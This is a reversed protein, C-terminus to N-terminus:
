CIVVSCEKSARPLMQLEKTIELKRENKATFHIELSELVRACKLFCKVIEMQCETGGFEFIKITKLFSSLCNVGSEELKHWLAPNWKRCDLYKLVLTDLSRCRALFRPLQVLFLGPSWVTLHTLNHFFPIPIKHKRLDALTTGCITLTKINSIGRMLDTVADIHRSRDGHEEGFFIDAEALSQVNAFAHSNLDNVSYDLYVLNPANIVIDLSSNNLTTGLYQVALRKVTTNSISLKCSDGGFGYHLDELIPCSSLLRNWSDDDPFTINKVHLVKLSPLCFKAPLKLGTDVSEFQKIKRSRMITVGLEESDEDSYYHRNSESHESSESHENSESSYYNEYTSDYDEESESYEDSKYQEDDYVHDMELDHSGTKRLKLVVLTKCNFLCTPLLLDKCQNVSVFLDLERIGHWTVASIWGQLRLPDPPQSLLWHLRFKEVSSKRSFFLREVFNMYDFQDAKKRRRRRFELNLDSTAAYLYKWRTSLISTRVADKFPLFALIHLVLEDNLRSLYDIGM